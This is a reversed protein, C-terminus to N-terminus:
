ARPRLDGPLGGADGDEEDAPAAGPAEVTRRWLTVLTDGYRATRDAAFEPPVAPVAGHASCEWVCLGGSRTVKALAGAIGDSRDAYPPDLFVVDFTHGARVLRVLAADARMTWVEAREGLGLRSLNERIVRAAAPSRDVFVAKAAGRSLAEIGLAGSGAYLDLVRAGTVAEGLRDFLAQRVRDSTPRTGREPVRLRQGGLRGGIVRVRVGGARQTYCAPPNM